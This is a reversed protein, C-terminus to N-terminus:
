AEPPGSVHSTPVIVRTRGLNHGGGASICEGQEHFCHCREVMVIGKICIYLNFHFHILFTLCNISGLFIAERKTYIVALFENQPVVAMAYVLCLRGHASRNPTPTLLQKTSCM